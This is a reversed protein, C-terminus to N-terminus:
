ATREMFSGRLRSYCNPRDRGSERLFRKENAAIMRVCFKCTVDAEDTEVNLDDSANSMRNCLTGTRFSDPGLRRVKSLHTVPQAM